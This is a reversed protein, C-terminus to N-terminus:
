TVKNAELEKEKEVKLRELMTFYTNGRDLLDQFAKSRQAFRGAEDHNGKDLADLANQHQHQIEMILYGRIGEDAYLRALGEKMSATLKQQSQTSTINM